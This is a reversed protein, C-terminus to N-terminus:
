CQYCFTHGVDLVYLCRPANSFVPELNLDLSRWSLSRLYAVECRLKIMWLVSKFLIFIHLFKLLTYLVLFVNDNDAISEFAPLVGPFFLCKGGYIQDIGQSGQGTNM